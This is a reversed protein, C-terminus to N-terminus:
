RDAEQKSPAPDKGTVDKYIKRVRAKVVMCGPDNVLCYGLTEGECGCPCMETNIAEVFTHREEDSLASLDYGPLISYYKARVELNLTGTAGSAGQSADREASGGARAAMRQDLANPKKESGSAGPAKKSLDSNREAMLRRQLEAMKQIQDDTVGAISKVEAITTFSKGASRHALIKAASERSINPSNRLAKESVNNVHAVIRKEEAPTLKTDAM